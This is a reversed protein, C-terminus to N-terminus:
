ALAPWHESAPRGSRSGRVKCPRAVTRALGIQRKIGGRWVFLLFGLRYPSPKKSSIAPASQRFGSICFIM